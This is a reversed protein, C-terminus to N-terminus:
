RAITNGCRASVSECGPDLPILKLRALEGNAAVLDTAWVRALTGTYGKLERNMIEYIESMNNTPAGDGRETMSLLTALRNNVKIPFNLPDQGSQNRVQYINEEVASLHAVLTDAKSKLTADNSKKLRDAVQAKVRRIRIVAQNAEEAKDRVKRAFAFQARLDADTVDTLRPNRVVKLPTSLTTGDAVLRATYRGPPVAPGSTGAGWFIMGPFSTIGQTRLDWNIRQLGSDKSIFPGAGRRRGGAPAGATDSRVTDPVFTRLVTGASDLIELKVNTPARKLKWSIPVSPGSRVGVPSAFLYNDSALVAPSAQRLPAINDLAWFGRGHSAIVLENGEVVIDAVPVDPMNLALSQWTAGDDYSIHVGHQTAAYLLGPRMPDERVAHVYEDAALGNVIKTWTKGYDATKWIYPARDNLLPRRVSVYAGGDNFASADIQSVRGFEPMDNPTVNTWTKGGNRTVHVLGDDSGTWITNINKKSPGISFIVGYVEPGNMDGTIPGGSKQQTSPDHRTLDGSLATWTRGGNTTRWLRQSSVYLTKPDIPSFIIPYTWQWRERIDKSPEGSYFWPYPNVERSTGLRRNYKDLFGGNNTGSYFQDPDLPDPAIYGPEGGGAEYSVSMGGATIDSRRTTTDARRTTTDSRRGATDSRRAMTDPRRPSQAATFAGLNWDFPVCLTSNDQQSGCVHYPIHRTAAVHYFQETPYDEATWKGATNTSVAGGGDNGVVLHTADNPDIWLDHFDGHTGNTVDITTKGGDKSRFMSTNQMYVVDADKPDAFVHTYYFARQRIARNENILKWTAGADESRFLGGKENEVLAYVRNSSAGSVAVGIRGVVGSPMGPNRTIEKWTEGGDTSKFLGSGPGGSSMQYEKRYAEWMAAYMINPNHRDISIDIAATNPDRYLVRRWSKGGDTSKYVGREESPVSYKGFSAVFVINPNTPHIRIKSIGDTQSFGVHSWTKGADISKYVGDGPMINGRICTEGMGIFVVDPNSESVAIAGVSASKIQGDTVPAWNDGGDTTKWLGGGTAGFYAENPRGVVGSVAISRGGRDPGINRWKFGSRFASDLVVPALTSAARTQAAANPAAAITSLATLVPITFHRSSLM